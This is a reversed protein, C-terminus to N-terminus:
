KPGLYRLYIARQGRLNPASPDLARDTSEFAIYNNHTSTAVNESPALAQRNQASLSEFSASRHGVVGIFVDRAGNLDDAFNPFMKLNSAESDFLVSHGAGSIAPRNSPGNGIVNPTRSILLQRPPSASLDARVVDSARNGDGAVLNSAATEYAVYRGDDTAAPHSSPGNGARGSRAASVLRTELTLSQAPRGRRFRRFKRVMSRQYVDRAPSYDGRALNTATSSFALARGNGSLAPEGSGGNGARGKTSASALFTLSQFRRDPGDGALFRVYVQRTGAPPSSTRATLWSKRHTRTLALNAATSSFAVRGCDDDVSVDFSPGNAQVARSDVSVRTIQGTRLDRVFADAVGNTDGPVLNSADSVFAVCTPATHAGGDLTPRYSPGNAPQGGIGTAVLETGGPKWPTGNDPYPEARRVLFVDTVGNSDGAAIDTADSEFAIVRATRADRSIAVNRSPGNPVGGDHSRSLLDTTALPFLSTQTGDAAARAPMLLVALACVLACRHLAL